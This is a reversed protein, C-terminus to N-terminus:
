FFEVDVDAEISVPTHDLTQGLPLLITNASVRLRELLTLTLTLTLTVPVHISPQSRHRSDSDTHVESCPATGGGDDYAFPYGRRASPSAERRM